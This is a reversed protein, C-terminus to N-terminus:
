QSHLPLRAKEQRKFRSYESSVFGFHGKTGNGTMKPPFITFLLPFVALYLANKNDLEKPGVGWLYKFM